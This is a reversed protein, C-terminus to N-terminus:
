EREELDLPRDRMDSPRDGSESKLLSLAGGKNRLFLVLDPPVFALPGVRLGAYDLWVAMAGKDTECAM